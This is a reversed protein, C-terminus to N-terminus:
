KGNELVKIKDRIIACKEYEEKEEAEKLDKELIHKELSGSIDELSKLILLSTIALASFEIFKGWANGKDEM